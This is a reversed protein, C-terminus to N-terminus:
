DRAKSLHVLDRLSRHIEFLVIIAEAVLRSVIPGAIILAWATVSVSAPVRYSSGTDLINFGLLVCAISALIWGVKIVAPTIMMEFNFFSRDEGSKKNLVPPALGSREWKHVAKKRAIEEKKRVKVRRWKSYRCQIDNSGDEPLTARPESRSRINETVCPSTETPRTRDYTRGSSDIRIM